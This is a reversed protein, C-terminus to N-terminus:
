DHPARAGARHRHDPRSPHAGGETLRWTRHRPDNTGPASEALARTALVHLSRSVAAKDLAIMDCVQRATIGPEMALTSVVRWEAIGVGFENLYQRPTGRSLANHATFLFYPVYSNLDRARRGDHLRVSSSLRHDPCQRASSPAATCAASPACTL